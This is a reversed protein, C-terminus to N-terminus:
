VSPKLSWKRQAYKGRKKLEQTVVALETVLKEFEEEYKESPM